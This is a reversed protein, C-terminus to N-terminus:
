LIRSTPGIKPELKFKSEVLDAAEQQTRMERFQPVLSDVQELADEGYYKRFSTL